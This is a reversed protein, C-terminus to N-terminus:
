APCDLGRLFEASKTIADSQGFSGAKTVIPLNELPGSGLTACPIAPLVEGRLWLFDVDLRACVAAAVDGGTLILGGVMGRLCPDAATSALQETLQHGPVSSSRCGTITLITDNGEALSKTVEDRLSAIEGGTWQRDIHEPRIVTMGAEAAFSIQRATAEHRTGSITLVPRGNLAPAPPQPARSELPLRHMLATAFGASGALLTGPLRTAAEAITLLDEDSAADIVILGEGTATITELLPEAGKRVSDLGIWVIRADTHERLQKIVFSTSLGAGLTTTHLLLGHVYVRGEITIRGESPLAPAIIATSFGQSDMTLAIELGPHGRMASDIKRYWRHPRGRSVAQQLTKQVRDPVDRKDIDRCESSLSLVDVAPAASDRLPVATVLGASAFSGGTDAAGTLDDAVIVLQPATM